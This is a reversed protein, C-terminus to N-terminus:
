SPPSSPFHSQWLSRLPSLNTAEEQSIWKCNTCGGGSGFPFREIYSVSFAELLREGFLAHKLVVRCLDESVQGESRSIVEVGGVTCHQLLLPFKSSRGHDHAAMIHEHNKGSDVLALADAAERIVLTFLSSPQM